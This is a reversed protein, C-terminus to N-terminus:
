APDSFVLDTVTFRGNGISRGDGLGVLRSADLLIAHFQERSVVTKDFSVRFTARWGPAAAVRYRVNRGRTTPNRVSQIDLYVRAEEDTPPPDPLTLGDLLIRRDLVLLTAALLPQLSGRGQKTYRAAERLCSFIAASRLYLQGEATTLVTRRWETPDNGAVGARERKTLPIADPTFAHWLLPREGTITAQAILINRM